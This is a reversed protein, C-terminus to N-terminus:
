GVVGMRPNQLRGGTYDVKLSPWTWQGELRVADDESKIVEDGPQKDAPAAVADQEDGDSKFMNNILDSCGLTLVALLALVVVM